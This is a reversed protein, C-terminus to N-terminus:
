GSADVEASGVAYAWPRERRDREQFAAIESERRLTLGIEDLGELLMERQAPAIEFGICAGGAPVVVCRVLDVTFLGEPRALAREALATVSAEPLAVPLLGNKVANAQFIDAFSPAIVARIGFDMLAWVAHERSSGCGFNPGTLLFKARRFGAQNLVFEPNERRELDYRWRAFLGKGLGTRGATVSETQPIIADTDINARLLPAAVGEEITFKQMM